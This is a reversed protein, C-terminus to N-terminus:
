MGDPGGKAAGEALAQRLLARARALRSMVTGIPAQTVAAIEKYSLDELERLILAERFEPPLRDIAARVSERDLKAALRAEPQGLASEPAEYAMEDLAVPAAAGRQRGLWTYATRRVITLLWCRADGGRFGDFFRLARVYAEQVVDRADQDNRTLWLALNHAADLHPLAAEEFRRAKEEPRM